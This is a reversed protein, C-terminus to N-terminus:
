GTLLVLGERERERERLPITSLFDSVTFDKRVGIRFKGFCGECFFIV